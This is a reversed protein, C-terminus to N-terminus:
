DEQPERGHYAVNIFVGNNRAAPDTVIVGSDLERLKQYAFRYGGSVSWLETLRRM